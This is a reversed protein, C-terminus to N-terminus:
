EAPLLGRGDLLDAAARAMLAHGAANPHADFMNIWLAGAQQGLFYDFANIAPIGSEHGFRMVAEYAARPAHHADLQVIYPVVMLGVKAGLEHRAYALM